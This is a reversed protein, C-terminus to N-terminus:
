YRALLRVTMALQVLTVSLGALLPKLLRPLRTMVDYDCAALQKRAFGKPARCATGGPVMLSIAFGGLSCSSKLSEDFVIESRMTKWSPRASKLAPTQRRDRM